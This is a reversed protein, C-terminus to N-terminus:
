SPGGIHNFPAGFYFFDSNPSRGRMCLRQSRAVRHTDEHPGWDAPLALFEKGNERVLANRTQDRLMENPTRQYDWRCAVYFVDDLHRALGSTHPPEGCDSM